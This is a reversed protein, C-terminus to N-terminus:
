WFIRLFLPDFLGSRIILSIYAEVYSEAARWDPGEGGAAQSHQLDAIM